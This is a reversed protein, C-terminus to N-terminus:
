NIYDLYELFEKEEEIKWDAQKTKKYEGNISAADYGNTILLTSIIDKTDNDNSIESGPFTYEAEEGNISGKIESIGDSGFSNKIELDFNNDGYTGTVHKKEYSNEQTYQIQKDGIIGKVQKTSSTVNDKTSEIYVNQNNIEGEFTSSSFDIRNHKIDSSCHNSSFTITDSYNNEDTEYD